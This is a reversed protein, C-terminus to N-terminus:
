LPPVDSMVEPFQERAVTVITQLFQPLNAQQVALQVATPQGEARLVSCTEVGDSAMHRISGCQIGNVGITMPEREM